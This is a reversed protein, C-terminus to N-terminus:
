LIDSNDAEIYLTFAPSYVVPMGNQLNVTFKGGNITVRDDHNLVNM